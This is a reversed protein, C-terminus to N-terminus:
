RLQARFASFCCHTIDMPMRSGRLRRWTQPSHLPGYGSVGVRALEVQVFLCKLFFCVLWVFFVSCHPFPSHTWSFLPPVSCCACRSHTASGEELGSSWIWGWSDWVPRPTVGDRSPGSCSRTHTLAFLACSPDACSWLSPAPTSPPPLVQGVSSVRSTCSSPPPVQDQWLLRRSGERALRSVSCCGQDRRLGGRGSSRRAAAEAACPNWPASLSPIFCCASQLSQLPSSPSM